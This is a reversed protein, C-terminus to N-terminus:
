PLRSSGFLSSFFALNSVKSSSINESTGSISICLQVKGVCGHDELYLPWWRIIEGQKGGYDM